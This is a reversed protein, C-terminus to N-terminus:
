INPLSPEIPLIPEIPPVIEEEPCSFIKILFDYLREFISLLINICYEIATKICDIVTCIVTEINDFNWERETIDPNESDKNGINGINLFRSLFNGSKLDM